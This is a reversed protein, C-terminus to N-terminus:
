VLFGGGKKYQPPIVYNSNPLSGLQMVAAGGRQRIGTGGSWAYFGDVLPYRQYNGGIIRLGQMSPNQHSRLGVPNGLNFRGGTGVIVLYGPPIYDEECIKLFGYQGIIPVGRFTDEPQNGLLGEANPLIIAPQSPAPIFDYTAAVGNTVVGRRFTRIVDSEAKNCMVLFQTGSEASYGHEALLLYLTDLDGPDLASNGSRVYHTHTGDFTNSKFPPPAVGDVGNYLPYVNYANNRINARRLRNDFIAEMVKRFVLRKHAWLVATHIAEVQRADADALFMWSYANRKDYHRLDYGMQFVDIPLGAGRPVGLQSAEEFTVEGIQVVPEVPVQVPFTLLEILRDMAENYIATSEAFQGWLANLDTGDATATILDGQVAIGEQRVPATGGFIPWAALAKERADLTGIMAKGKPELLATMTATFPM